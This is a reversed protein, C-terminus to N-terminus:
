YTTIESKHNKECSLQPNEFELLRSLTRKNTQKNTQKKDPIRQKNRKLRDRDKINVFPTM